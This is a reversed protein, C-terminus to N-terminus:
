RGWIKWFNDCKEPGGSIIELTQKVLITPNAIGVDRPVIASLLAPAEAKDSIEVLSYQIISTFVVVHVPRWVDFCTTFLFIFHLDKTM